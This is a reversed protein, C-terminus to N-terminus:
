HLREEKRKINIISNIEIQMALHHRRWVRFKKLRDLTAIFLLKFIKTLSSGCLNKEITLNKM